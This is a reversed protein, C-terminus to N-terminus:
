QLAGNIILYIARLGAAFGGLTTVSVLIILALLIAYEVATPGSDEILFKKWRNM